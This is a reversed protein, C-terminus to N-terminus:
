VARTVSRKGALGTVTGFCQESHQVAPLVDEAAAASIVLLGFRLAFRGGDTDQRIPRYGFAGM